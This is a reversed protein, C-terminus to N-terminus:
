DRIQKKGWAARLYKGPGTTRAPEPLRVESGPSLVVARRASAPLESLRTYIGCPELRGEFVFFLHWAGARSQVYYEDEVGEITNEPPCLNGHRRARILLGMRELDSPPRM